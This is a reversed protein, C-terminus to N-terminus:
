IDDKGAALKEFAALAIDALAKVERWTDLLKALENSGLNTLLIDLTDSDLAHLDKGFGDEMGVTSFQLDSANFLSAHSALNRLYVFCRLSSNFKGMLTPLMGNCTDLSNDTLTIVGDKMKHVLFNWACKVGPDSIIKLRGNAYTEKILLSQKNSM